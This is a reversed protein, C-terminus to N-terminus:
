AADACAHSRRYVAYVFDSGIVGCRILETELLTMLRLLAVDREDAPDFSAAIDALLFQLLTGGFPRYEVCEFRAALAAVIDASHIAESPDLAVVEQPSVRRMVGKFRGNASDRRHSDPLLGLVANMLREAEDSWQFRDPGVYENIALVGDAALADRCRDLVKGLADVHHLSQEFVILDYPGDLALDNVNAVRVSARAQLGAEAARATAVAVAGASLDIGEMQQVIGLRLADIVVAGSGCGLSLGRGRQVPFHTRRLHDVWGVDPSGSILRNIEAATV